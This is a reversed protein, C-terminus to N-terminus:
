DVPIRGERELRQRLTAGEIFPMVYYLVGDSEGSDHVPVIHPHSLRAALQIGRLFRESAVGRAIEPDLIKLAVERDHRSDHARFVVGMAGRGVERDIAYRDAITHGTFDNAKSVISGTVM